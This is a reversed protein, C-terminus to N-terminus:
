KKMHAEDFLFLFFRVKRINIFLSHKFAIEKTFVCFLYIFLHFFYDFRKWSLVYIKSAM